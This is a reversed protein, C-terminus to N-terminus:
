HRFSTLRCPVSKIQEQQPLSNKSAISPLPIKYHILSFRLLRVDEFNREDFLDEEIYVLSRLEVVIRQANKGEVFGM